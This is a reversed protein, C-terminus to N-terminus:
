FPKGSGSHLSFHAMHTALPLTNGSVLLCMSQGLVAIPWTDAMEKRWRGRGEGINRKHICEKERLCTRRVDGKATLGSAAEELFGEGGNWDRLQLFSGLRLDHRARGYGVAPSIGLPYICPSTIGWGDRACRHLTRWAGPSGLSNCQTCM